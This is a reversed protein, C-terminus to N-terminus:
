GHTGDALIDFIFPDNETEPEATSKRILLETPLFTHTKKPNQGHIESYLTEFAQFGLQFRPQSITTISPSTTISVSTNDFGLVMLDEPVRISLTRAANICAAAFVDSICVIADPRTKKLHFIAADYASQYEMSSVHVIQDAPLSLMWDELALILGQLREKAFSYDTITTFFSFNRCGLSLLYEVAKKEAEVNDITISSVDPFRSAAESCQIMPIQKYIQHLLRESLPQLSILGRFQGATRSLFSHVNKENIIAYDVYVRCSHQAAATMAGEIIDAYFPNSATPISMLYASSFSPEPRSAAADHSSTYSRKQYGKEEIYSLVRDRTEKQVQEPHNLVRSVTAPSLQLAKSIDYISVSQKKM